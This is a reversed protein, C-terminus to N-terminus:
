ITASTDRLHQAARVTRKLESHQDRLWEILGTLVLPKVGSMQPVVRDALAVDLVPVLDLAGPEKLVVRKLVDALQATGIPWGGGLAGVEPYRAAAVVDGLLALVAVIRQDDRWNELLAVDDPTGAQAPYEAVLWRAAHALAADLERPLDERSPVGVYVFQFRRSLGQSFDYVFSMDVDNMTGIIRFRRPVDIVRRRPNPEFWLELSREGSGGLLTYLGGVAKDMQARSFEDIILWHAQRPEGAPDDEHGRAVRACRLAARPVHGLWPRLIEKGEDGVAPQLGGIVDYTSWDATATKLEYSCDFARTLAKAFTTKGTGPPGQLVLHGTLLALVCQEILDPDPLLLGEAQVEERVQDILAQVDASELPLDSFETLDSYDEEEEAPDDRPPDQVSGPAPKRTNPPPLAGALEEPPWGNTIDLTM